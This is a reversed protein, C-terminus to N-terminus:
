PTWCVANTATKLNTQDISFTSCTTDLAQKGTATATLTYSSASQNSLTIIYYGQPSTQPFPPLSACGGNYTFSQAYCREIIAQDQTLTALADSRHSKLVWALYSPYAISMLIGVVVIVIMLEILTFGRSTPNNKYQNLNLTVRRM